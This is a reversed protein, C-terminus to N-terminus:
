ARTAPGPVRSPRGARRVLANVDLISVSRSAVSIWGRAVYSALTKNVSERTTGAIQALERQTLGHDVLVADDDERGFQDALDLLVQALRAAVDSFVLDATADNIRRLRRALHRILWTAVDIHADLLEDLVDRDLERLTVATVAHASPAQIDGEFLSLEGFVEGPGLVLVNSLGVGTHQSVKVKGAVVLYAADGPSGPEFVAQGKKVTLTRASSMVLDPVLAPTSNDEM